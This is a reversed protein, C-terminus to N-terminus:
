GIPIRPRQGLSEHARAQPAYSVVSALVIVLMLVLLLLLVLMLM